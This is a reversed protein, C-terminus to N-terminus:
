KSDRNYLDRTLQKIIKDQQDIRSTLAEVKDILLAINTILGKPLEEAKVKTGKGTYWWHLNLDYKEYLHDVVKQPTKSKGSVYHSFTPAPINMEQAITLQM